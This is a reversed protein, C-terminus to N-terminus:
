NSQKVYWEVKFTKFITYLPHHERYVAEQVPAMGIFIENSCKLLRQIGQHIVHSKHKLILDSLVGVMSGYPCVQFAKELFTFFRGLM